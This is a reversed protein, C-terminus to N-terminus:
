LRVVIYPTYGRARLLADATTVTITVSDQASVEGHNDTVTLAFIYSGSSGATFTRTAGTGSLALPGAGGTQVWNYSIITGDPDTSGSGDLTVVEGPVVSQNPGANATPGVNPAGIYAILSDTMGVSDDRTETVGIVQPSGTDTIGIDDDIYAWMASSSVSLADTIGISDSITAELPPATVETGALAAIEANSLAVDYVRLNDMRINPEYGVSTSGILYTNTGSLETNAVSSAQVGNIVIRRTTGSAVVAVHTWTATPVEVGSPGLWPYWELTSGGQQQIQGIEGPTGTVMINYNNGGAGVIYVDFMLTYATSSSFAPLTPGNVLNCRLASGHLGTDWAPVGTLTTGGGAEAATTGAGENFAYARVPNVM